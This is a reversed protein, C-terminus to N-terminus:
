MGKVQAHSGGEILEQAWEKVSNLIFAACVIRFGRPAFGSYLAGAGGRAYIDALTARITAYEPNAHKDLYAESQRLETAIVPTLGLMNACVLGDRMASCTLGKFLRAAGYGSVVHRVAAGASLGARQQQIVVLEAPSAVLAATAGGLAACAVGEERAPKRGVAATFLQTYSGTAGFQVATMPVITSINVAYGRYLARPALSVPRGEQLANKVAITPQMCTVEVAGAVAGVLTQTASERM